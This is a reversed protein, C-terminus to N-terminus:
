RQPEKLQRGQDEENGKSGREYCLIILPIVSLSRVGKCFTRVGFFQSRWQVPDM